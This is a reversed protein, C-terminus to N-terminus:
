RPESAALIQEARIVSHFLGKAYRERQEAQSLDSARKRTAAYLLLAASVSLNLSEVFGRMPIRVTHAAAAEIEPAVGRHENGLVIAVRPVSALDEPLLEGKPHATVLAYGLDQLASIAAIPTPHCAVDIWRETGQAVKRSILLPEPSVVHLHQVSFADCSRLAAAANHPDYPGDLLVTVSDIRNALVEQIRARREFGVLPEFLEIVGATTWAAPWPASALGHLPVADSNDRRMPRSDRGRPEVCYCSIPM